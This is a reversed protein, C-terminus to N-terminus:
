EIRVMYFVLPDLNVTRGLMRIRNAEVDGLPASAWAPPRLSGAGIGGSQASSHFACHATGTAQSTCVLYNGDPRTRPFIVGGGSSLIEAPGFADVTAESSPDDSARWAWTGSLDPLPLPGFEADAGDEIPFPVYDVGFPLSVLPIITGDALQARARRASEFTLLLPMGGLATSPSAHAPCGFCSGDAYDRLLALASDRQMPTVGLRWHALGERYDFQAISLLQGRHQLMLGTGPRTQSTWAGEAPRRQPGFVKPAVVFEFTGIASTARAAGFLNVSYLGEALPPIDARFLSEEISGCASQECEVNLDIRISSGDVQVTPQTGPDIDIGPAPARFIITTARGDNPVPPATLVLEVAQVSAGGLTASLLLVVRLLHSM